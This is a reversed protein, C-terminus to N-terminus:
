DGIASLSTNHYPYGMNRVEWVSFPDRWFAYVPVLMILGFSLYYIARVQKKGASCM